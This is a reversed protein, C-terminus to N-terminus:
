QKPLGRPIPEDWPWQEPDGPGIVKLAPFLLRVWTGIHQLSFPISETEVECTQLGGVWFQICTYGGNTHFSIRGTIEYQGPAADM